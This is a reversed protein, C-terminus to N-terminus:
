VPRRNIREITELDVRSLGASQLIGLIVASKGETYADIDDPFRQALQRKLAGYAAAADSHRRLYDRVVLHNALALSDSPCVYLHHRPPTNPSTFAERGEIGLNGVHRYGLTSLREIASPVAAGTQVVVSMDIIPKAALDPVSTSGVHEITIAVDHLVPWVRARVAEFGTPWTPDYDVVTITAM